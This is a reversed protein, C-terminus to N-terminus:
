VQSGLRPAASTEAGQGPPMKGNLQYVYALVEAVAMYLDPPIEDGVEVTRFMARALPINQVIPIRCERAIAVIREAVRLPGKALVRPAYMGDEYQVAIALHTPNTIVVTAEPVRSLMRGRAMQRQQGRIRYKLM